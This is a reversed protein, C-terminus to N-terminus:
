NLENNYKCLMLTTFIAFSQIEQTLQVCTEIPIAHAHLIEAALVGLYGTHM